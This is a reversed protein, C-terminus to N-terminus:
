RRQRSSSGQFRRLHTNKCCKAKYATADVAATNSYADAAATGEKLDEATKHSGVGCAGTGATTKSFGYCKAPDWKCCQKKCEPDGKEKDCTADAKAIKGAGCVVDGCLATAACCDTKWTAKATTKAKWTDTSGEFTDAACAM